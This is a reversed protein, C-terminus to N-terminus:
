PTGIPARECIGQISTSCSAESLGDMKPAFSLCDRDGNPDSPQGLAWESKTDPSFWAEGDAWVFTGEAAMDNGCTWKPGANPDASVISMTLFAAEAQSTIATLDADVNNAQCAKRALAWVAAKATLFYCHNTITNLWGECV